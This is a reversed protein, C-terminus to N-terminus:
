KSTETSSQLTSGRFGGWIAVKWAINEQGWSTVARMPPATAITITGAILFPILFYDFAV